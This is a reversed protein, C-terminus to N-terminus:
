AETSSTGVAPFAMAESIAHIVASLEDPTLTYELRDLEFDFNFCLLAPNCRHGGVELPLRDDDDKMMLCVCHNPFKKM